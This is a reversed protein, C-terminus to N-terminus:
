MGRSGKTMAVWGGFGFPTPLKINTVTVTLDNRPINVRLVDAKYDGARGLAALVGKYEGAVGQAGCLTAAALGLTGRAAVRITSCLKTMNMTLSRHECRQM